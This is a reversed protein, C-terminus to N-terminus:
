VTNVNIILPGTYSYDPVLVTLTITISAGPSLEVPLSPSVTLLSFGTTNLSMNIITHSISASNEFTAVIPMHGNINVTITIPTGQPSPGLYHYFGNGASINYSEYNIFYDIGTVTVTQQTAFMGIGIAGAVLIVITIISWFSLRIKKRQAKAM